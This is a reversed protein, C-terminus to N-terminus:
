NCKEKLSKKLYKDTCHMQSYTRTMDCVCKLTYGCETTAQIDLFEKNSVPVIQLKFTVEAVFRYSRLIHWRLWLNIIKQNWLFIKNQEWTIWTKTNQVMEHNVSDTIDLHTNTWSVLYLKSYIKLIVVWSTVLSPWNIFILLLLLKWYDKSCNPPSPSPKM